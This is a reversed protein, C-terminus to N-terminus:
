RATRARAAVGGIGEAVVLNPTRELFSVLMRGGDPAYGMSETVLEGESLVLVRRDGAPFEQEFIAIRGERDLGVFAVARGDPRWRARGLAVPISSLGGSVPLNRFPVAIRFPHPAGDEARAVRVEQGEVTPVDYLVLTGDPSVEPHMTVGRVLRRAGSGDLRLRWLGRRDRNGSSFLVWGGPAATPNEADRGDRSLQRAARGDSEAVWVEFSGGRDSSWLLQRGDPTFAPDWDEAPDDTLRHLAGDATALSWLDLNGGRTSSFVVLDGSPAYVPQRDVTTGRSLWRGPASGDLPVERLNQRPVVATLVVQGAALVELSPVVYPVWLLTRAASSGPDWALLRSSPTRAAAGAPSALLLTSEGAWGLSSLAGGRGLRFARQRGSEPELLLVSDASGTLSTRRLVALFRGDPSWRPQSLPLPHDRTLIREGSGDAAAIGVAWRTRLHGRVFAIRAGDPSWDGAVADPMVRRPEGGVTAVRFLDSGAERRRTFLIGTGDPSFRPV